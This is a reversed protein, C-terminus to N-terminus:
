EETETASGESESPDVEAELHGDRWLAFRGGAERQEFSIRNVGRHIATPLVVANLQANEVDFLWPEDDVIFCIYRIDPDEGYVTIVSRKGPLKGFLSTWALHRRKANEADQVESEGFPEVAAIAQGKYLGVGGQYDASLPIQSWFWDNNAISGGSFVIEQGDDSITVIPFASGGSSTAAIRDGTSILQIRIGTITQGSRNRLLSGNRFGRSVFRGMSGLNAPGVSGVGDANGHGVDTDFDIRIEASLAWSSAFLCALSAWAVVHGSCVRM